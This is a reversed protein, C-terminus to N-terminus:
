YNRILGCYLEVAPENKARSSLAPPPPKNLRDELLQDARSLVVALYATEEGEGHVHMRHLSWVNKASLPNNESKFKLITHVFTKVTRSVLISIGFWISSSGSLIAISCVEPM